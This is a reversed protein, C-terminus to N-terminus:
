ELNLKKTLIYNTIFFFAASLIGNFALGIAFVSNFINVVDSADGSAVPFNSFAFLGGIIGFLIQTLTNLVIFAGFSALAKHRDSLHGIAISVYILLIGFALSLIVNAIIGVYFSYSSAGLFQHIQTVLLSLDAGVEAFVGPYYTIIIISSIAIAISCVIWLMSILLKSVIHKWPKVALTFMLYGEDSLLNKYFRQIMVIFTIVFMAMLLLIYVFMSIAEPLKWSLTDINTLFRTVTAILLVTLYIPLFIRATAITEHKLLKRLM